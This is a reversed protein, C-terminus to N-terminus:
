ADDLIYTYRIWYETNAELTNLVPNSSIGDIMKVSMDNSGPQTTRILLYKSNAVTTSSSTGLTANIIRRDSPFIIRGNSDSTMAGAFFGIKGGVKEIPKGGM